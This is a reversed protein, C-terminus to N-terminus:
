LVYRMYRKMADFTKFNGCTMHRMLDMFAQAINLRSYQMQYMLKGIGSRLISQNKPFLVEEEEVLSMLVTGPAAPTSYSGLKFEEEYSQMLMTQVFRVAYDGVYKIKNVIYEILVECDDWKFQKMLDSKVEMVSNAPGLIMYDDTWSIMIVMRGENWKYYLCPDAYSRKLGITATAALLKWYFAMTAAQQLGYLCKKLLLIIDEKYFEEFRMLIKIYIMEGDNFKGCLFVGKMNVVHTIGGSTPVLTLTLRITM